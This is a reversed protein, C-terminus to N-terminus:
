KIEITVPKSSIGNAIVELTSEGGDCSTPLDFHTSTPSGDSIGMASHNHTRAYCVHGSARNTIRVVPYNTYQQIDDGFSSGTSVGNFLTGQLLLDSAGTKASKPSATITPRWSDKPRGEPTYIEIDGLDSSWFVQGTPLMLMRGEYSAINPADAPDDVQKFRKGDFEFFHSPTCAANNGGCTYAPSLQVLVNGGPLEAAPGDESSYYVHDVKPLDPAASWKETLPNYISSHSSCNSDSCPNAGVQLLKGNNMLIGPGVEESFPDHIRATTHHGTTWAGTTANYTESDSYDKDGDRWADVTLVTNGPLNNWGEEDYFDSKGAGTPTWTVKNGEIRAVAAQPPNNDLIGACCNALMYTGDTLVVSQADGITNWGNPSDVNTWKDKVPDYLAGLKLFVNKCFNYEGGNVILRGDALVQSAFGYPGYDSPMSAAKKWTGNAYNGNQDSTLRYWDPTCADHMLVTGDTMLLSTDPTQGPFRNALAQWTGGGSAKPAQFLRLHLGAYGGHKPLPMHALASDTAMTATALAVLSVGTRLKAAKPM